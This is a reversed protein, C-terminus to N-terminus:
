PNGRPPVLPRWSAGTSASPLPEHERVEAARLCALRAGRDGDLAENCVDVWYKDPPTRRLARNRLKLIKMREDDDM